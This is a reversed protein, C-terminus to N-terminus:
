AAAIVSASSIRGWKKRASVVSGFGALFFRGMM